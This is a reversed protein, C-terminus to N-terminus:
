APPAHGTPVRAAPASRLSPSLLPSILTRGKRAVGADINGILLPPHVRPAGIWCPPAHVAATIAHGVTSRTTACAFTTSSSGHCHARNEPNALVFLFFSRHRDPPPPARVRHHHQPGTATARTFSTLPTGRHYTTQNPKSPIFVSPAVATTRCRRHRSEATARAPSPRSCEM